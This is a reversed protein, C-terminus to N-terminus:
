VLNRSSPLSVPRKISKVTQCFLAFFLRSFSYVAFFVQSLILHPTQASALASSKSGPFPFTQLIPGQMVDISMAVLTTERPTQWKSGIPPHSTPPENVVLGGCASTVPPTYDFGDAHLMNNSSVNRNLDPLLPDITTSPHSLRRQVRYNFRTQSGM